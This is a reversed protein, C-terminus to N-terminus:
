PAALSCRGLRAAEEQGLIGAEALADVTWKERPQWTRFLVIAHAADGIYPHKKLEEEPLTWLPYPQPPSLTILDKLGDYKEADFHRIDMLQEPYSYGRLQERYAVM